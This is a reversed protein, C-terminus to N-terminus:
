LERALELIQERTAHKYKGSYKKRIARLNPTNKLSLTQIETVIKQAIKKSDFNEIM